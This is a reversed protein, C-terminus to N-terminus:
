LQRLRRPGQAAQGAAQAEARRGQAARHAHAAARDGGPVRAAERGEPGRQPGAQEKDSGICLM